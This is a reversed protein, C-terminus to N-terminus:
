LSVEFACAGYAPIDSLYVEDARITGTCGVCKITKYKKDLQIKPDIVEDSSMNELLVSMSTDSKAAMIYLNTSRMCIAPLKKRGVWEISEVVQKQRHFNNFYISDSCAFRDGPTNEFDAAFVVFRIGESNEYTYVGPIEYPMIVSSVVADKSCKIKNYLPIQMGTITERVEIFYEGVAREVKEVSLIGTDVGREKLILAAKCDLIAGNALRGLPIHRASEGCVIVPYENETYCTPISNKSLLDDSFAKYWDAAKIATKQEQLKNPFEYDRIKHM